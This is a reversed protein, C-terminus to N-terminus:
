STRRFRRGNPRTSRSSSSSDPPTYVKATELIRQGRAMVTYDGRTILERFGVNYDTIDKDVKIYALANKMDAVDVDPVAQLEIISMFKGLTKRYSIISAIQLDNFIGLEALPQLDEGSATNLNIPHKLLQSSLDQLEEYDLNSSENNETKEELVDETKTEQEPAANQASTIKIQFLLCAFVGAFSITVQRLFYKGM